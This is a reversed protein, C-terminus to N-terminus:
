NGTSLEAMRLSSIQESGEVETGKLRFLFYSEEPLQERWEQESFDVKLSPVKASSSSM